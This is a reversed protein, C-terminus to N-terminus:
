LPTPSVLYPLGPYHLDLLWRQIGVAPSPCGRDGPAPVESTHAIVGSGVSFVLPLHLVAVTGQPLPRVPM